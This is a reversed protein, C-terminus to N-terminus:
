QTFLGHKITLLLQKTKQAEAAMLELQAEGPKLPVEHEDEFHKETAARKFRVLASRTASIQAAPCKLEGLGGLRLALDQMAIKIRLELETDREKLHYARGDILTKDISETLGDISKSVMERRAKDRDRDRSLKHVVLWGIVGILVQGAFKFLEAGTGDSM